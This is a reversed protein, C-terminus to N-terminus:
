SRRTMRSDTGTEPDITRAHAWWNAPDAELITMFLDERRIGPSASLEKAIAEFLTAKVEAPRTNFSLRIILAEDSRAVGFFNRDYILNEPELEHTIQFYDDDPIGLVEIMAHQISQAIKKRHEVSSGRRLYANILPM